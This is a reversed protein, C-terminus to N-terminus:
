SVQISPVNEEHKKIERAMKLSNYLGIILITSLINGLLEPQVLTRVLSISVYLTLLFLMISIAQRKLDGSTIRAVKGYTLIINAAALVLAAVWVWFVYFLIEPMFICGVMLVEVALLIYTFIPVRKNQVMKEVTNSMFIISFGLAVFTVFSLINKSFIPLDPMQEYNLPNLWSSSPDIRTYWHFVEWVSTTLGGFFFAIGYNNYIHRKSAQGEKMAQRADRLLRVGFYFFIFSVVIRFLDDIFIALQNRYGVRLSFYNAEDVENIVAFYMAALMRPKEGTKNYLYTDVGYVETLTQYHLDEQYSTINPWVKKPVFPLGATFNRMATENLIYLSCPKESIFSITDKDKYMVLHSSASKAADAETTNSFEYYAVHFQGPMLEMKSDIAASVPRFMTVVFLAGFLITAFLTTRKM